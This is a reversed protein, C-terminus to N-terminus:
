LRLPGVFPDLEACGGMLASAAGGCSYSRGDIARRLASKLAASGIAAVILAGSLRLPAFEACGDRPPAIVSEAM